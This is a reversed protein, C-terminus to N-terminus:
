LEKAYGKTRANVKAGTLEEIFRKRVNSERLNYGDNRKFIRSNIDFTKDELYKNMDVMREHIEESDIDEYGAGEM